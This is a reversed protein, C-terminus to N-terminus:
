SSMDREWTYATHADSLFYTKSVSCNHFLICIKPVHFDSKDTITRTCPTNWLLCANMSNFVGCARNENVRLIGCTVHMLFMRDGKPETVQMPHTMSPLPAIPHKLELPHQTTSWATILTLHFLSHSFPLSPSPLCLPSPLFPCNSIHKWVCALYHGSTCWMMDVCKVTKQVHAYTEAYTWMFACHAWTCLTYREMMQTAIVVPKGLIKCTEVIRKQIVPVDWPNM